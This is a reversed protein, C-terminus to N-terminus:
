EQTEVPKETLPRPTTLQPAPEDPAVPKAEVETSVPTDDLSYLGTAKKNAIIALGMSTIFFITTLIATTRSLFTGSGSAGFISGSNGAGFTAGADAGKGHQILILGTITVALIIHVTLILTEM